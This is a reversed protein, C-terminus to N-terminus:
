YRRSREGREKKTLVGWIVNFFQAGVRSSSSRRTASPEAAATILPRGPLPITKEPGPCRLGRRRNDAPVDDFQTMKKKKWTLILTPFFNKADLVCGAHSTLNSM